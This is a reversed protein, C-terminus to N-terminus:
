YLGYRGANLGLPWRGRAFLAYKRLFPHEDGAGALRALAHQHLCLLAAAAATDILEPELGAERAAANAVATRVVPAAAEVTAALRALLESESMHLVLQLWLREREHEDDDWGAVSHESNIWAAAAYWNRLLVIDASTEVGHRHLIMQVDRRDEQDLPAGIRAFWDPGTTM